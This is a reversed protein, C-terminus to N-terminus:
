LKKKKFYESERRKRECKEKMNEKPTDFSEKLDGLEYITYSWKTKGIKKQVLYGYEKLQSWADYFVKRPLSVRRRLMEINLEWQSYDTSLMEIMILKAISSLRDDRLLKMSISLYPNEMNHKAKAIKTNM